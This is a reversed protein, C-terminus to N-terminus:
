PCSVLIGTEPIVGVTIKAHFRHYNPHPLPMSQKATLRV